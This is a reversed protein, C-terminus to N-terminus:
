RIELVAMKERFGWRRTATREVYFGEGRFISEVAEINIDLSVVLVIEGEPSLHERSQRAFRAIVDYDEGAYLASEALTASAKPFFPPNWAILDFRRDSLAIFLDSKIYEIDLGATTSNRSACDIARPNIDVATVKAGKRAAFLGIIGSGTGMDLFTKGALDLSQVYQGLILSSGFYKPHFVTPLICLDFGAVRTKVEHKAARNLWYRALLPQAIRRLHGSSVLTV